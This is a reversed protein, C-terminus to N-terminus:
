AGDTLLETRRRARIPRGAVFVLEFLDPNSLANWDDYGVRPDAAHLVLSLLHGHTVLVPLRPGAAAVDGLLDTFRALAERATEGGPRRLEPEAFSRRIVERWDDQPLAALTRERLREDSRVPVGAASAFPAITGLARAYPSSHIADIPLPRLKGALAEAQREGLATLPAAPEQGSSEAHRVLIATREAKPDISM